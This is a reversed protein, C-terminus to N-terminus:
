VPTPDKSIGGEKTEVAEGQESSVLRSGCVQNEALQGFGVGQNQEEFPDRLCYHSKSPFVEQATSSILEDEMKVSHGPPHGEADRSRSPKWAMFRLGCRQLHIVSM